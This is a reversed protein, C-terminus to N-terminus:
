VIGGTVNWVNVSVCQVIIPFIHVVSVGGLVLGVAITLAAIILFVAYTPLQYDQQLMDQIEKAKESLWFVTGVLHMSFFLSPVTPLPYDCLTIFTPLPYLYM